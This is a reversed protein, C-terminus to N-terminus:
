APPPMRCVGLSIVRSITMYELRESHAMRPGEFLGVMDEQARPRRREKAEGMAIGRWGQCDWAGNAEKERHWTAPVSRVLARCDEEGGAWCRAQHGQAL